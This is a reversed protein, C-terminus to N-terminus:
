PALAPLERWLVFLNLAILAAPFAVGWASEGRGRGIWVVAREWGLALMLAVPILAPFLYRGQFQIFTLNYIAMQAITLVVGTLLAIWAARRWAAGDTPANRQFAWQQFARGQFRAVATIWGVVAVGLLAAIGALAWAPLPRAMWGFQGWFSTFTTEFARRLYDLTGIQAILDATRPQGIVVADHAGLGLFDAGGYVGLNRAWWIAGFALAPILFAIWRSIIWAIQGDASPPRAMGAILIALPMIGALWYITTKTMFGVGVIVGVGIWARARATRLAVILAVFAIGVIADALADNNVSAMIALRQPVFAVLAAAALAVGIRTPFLARGIWFACLIAAAGLVVSFLRLATLSGDSLRYVLSALLYYLPPQHDEYEISDLRTLTDPAFAAGRLSDLYAQDYDGAAIIPCCGDAAIQAIYNAHAPEDPAQWAPTRVSYAAGLALYLAVIGSLILRHTRTM